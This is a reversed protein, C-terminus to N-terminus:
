QNGGPQGGMATLQMGQVQQQFQEASQSLEEHFEIQLRVGSVMQPIQTEPPLHLFADEAVNKLATSVVRRYNSLFGSLQRDRRVQVETATMAGDSKV